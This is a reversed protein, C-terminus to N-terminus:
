TGTRGSEPRWVESARWVKQGLHCQDRLWAIPDGRFGNAERWARPEERWQRAAKAAAEYGEPGTAALAFWAPDFRRLHEPVDALPDVASHQRRKM